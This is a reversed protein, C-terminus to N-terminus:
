QFLRIQSANIEGPSLMRNFELYITPQSDDGVKAGAKTTMFYSGVGRVIAPRCNGGAAACEVIVLNMNRRGEVWDNDTVEDYYRANDM